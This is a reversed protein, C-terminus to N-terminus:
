YWVAALLRNGPADAYAIVPFGNTSVMAIHQSNSEIVSDVAYPANWSSGQADAASIYMVAGSAYGRYAIAPKGGVVALAAVGGTGEPVLQQPQGTWDRGEPDDARQYYLPGASGSNGACFAPRGAVMSLSPKFLEIGGFMDAPDWSLGNAAAAALLALGDTDGQMTGGVAALPFTGSSIMDLEYITGTFGQNGLGVPAEFATGDSNSALYYRLSGAGDVTGYATMIGPRGANGPGIALGYGFDGDPSVQVQNDWSSGDPTAASVFYLLRDVNDNLAIFAIQPEGSVPNVMIDLAQLNGNLSNNVPEVPASWGTGLDSGARSFYMDYSSGGSYVVVARSNIGSGSVAMELEYVDTSADIVSTRWGSDLSIQLTATSTAFDNDTVKVSVATSGNRVFTYDLGAQEGTNREYQGDGDVDWEFSVITDDDTSASADLSVALPADGNTVDASIAAVPAQNAPDVVTFSTEASILRGDSGLASVKCTYLGPTEYVHNIPGKGAGALDISGDGDFDWDYGDPITAGYLESNLTFDVTLPAINMAPDSSLTTSLYSGELVSGGAVLWDLQCTDTGLVLVLCLVNGVPSVYDSWGPLSVPDEQMPYWDWRDASYNAVALYANSWDSPALLWGHAIQAPGEYESLKDFALCGFAANSIGGSGPLSYSPAFSGDSGNNISSVKNLPLGLLFGGGDCFRQYDFPAASTFHPMSSPRPLDLGSLGGPTQKSGPNDVNTPSGSAGCASLTFVLAISLVLKGPLKM